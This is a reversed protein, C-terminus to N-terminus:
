LVDETSSALWILIEDLVTVENEGYSASLHFHTVNHLFQRGCSSDSVMSWDSEDGSGGASAAPKSFFTRSSGSEIQTVSQTAEEVQFEVM